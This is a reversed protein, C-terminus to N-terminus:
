RCADANSSDSDLLDFTTSVLADLRNRLPCEFRDSPGEEREIREFVVPDILDISFEPRLFEPKRGAIIGDAM